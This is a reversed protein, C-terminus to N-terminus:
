KIAHHLLDSLRYWYLCAVYRAVFFLFIRSLIDRFCIIPCFASQCIYSMSQGMVMVFHYFLPLCSIDKLPTWVAIGKISSQHSSDQSGWIKKSWVAKDVSKNFFHGSDGHEFKCICIEIGKMAWCVNSSLATTWWYSLAYRLWSMTSCKSNLLPFFTPACSM